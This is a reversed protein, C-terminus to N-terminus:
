SRRSREGIAAPLVTAVRAALDEVARSMADVMSPYDGVTAQQTLDTRETALLDGDSNFLRWRTQLQVKGAPDTDFRLVTLDLELSPRFDRDNPLLIVREGGLKRRLNEVFVDSFMQDFSESWQDFDAMVLRTDTARSVIQPRDLYEPLQIKAVALLRTPSTPATEAEALPIM